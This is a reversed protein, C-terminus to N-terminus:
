MSQLCTFMFMYVVHLCLCTFLMSACEAAYYPMAGLEDVVGTFLYVIFMYVYVHLCPNSRVDSCDYWCGPACSCLNRYVYVHLCLCTIFLFVCVILINVVLAVNM